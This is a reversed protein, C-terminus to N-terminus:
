TRARIILRVPRDYFMYEWAWNVLVVLRSRFSVVNVLHVVLWFV